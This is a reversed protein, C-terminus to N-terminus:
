RLTGRDPNAGCSQSEAVGWNTKLTDRADARLDYSDFDFYVDKLLSSAPTATSDGRQLADLSSAATSDPASALRKEAAPPSVSAMSSSTEPKTSTSSCGGIALVTLFVVFYFVASRHNIM